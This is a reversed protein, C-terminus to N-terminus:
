PTNHKNINRSQNSARVGYSNEESFVDLGLESLMNSVDFIDLGVVGSYSGEIKEVFTAGKGQIAYAGAKDQPEGSLWYKKITDKNLKRFKVWTERTKNIIKGNYEIACCSMVKHWSNSLILLFKEADYYSDPKGFIEVGKTVITDAVLTPYVNEDHLFKRAANLKLEIIRNLYKEPSENPFVTEDIDVAFQDFKIGIQGLLEARRPSSSGLNLRM